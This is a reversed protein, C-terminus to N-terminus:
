PPLLLGALVHQMALQRGQYAGGAQRVRPGWSPPSPAPRCHARCATCCARAAPACGCAWAVSSWLCSCSAPAQLAPHAFLICDCSSTSQCPMICRCSPCADARTVLGVGAEGNGAHMSSLPSSLLSQRHQALLHAHLSRPTLQEECDMSEHRGHQAVMGTPAAAALYMHSPRRTPPPSLEVADHASGNTAHQVQQAQQAEDLLPEYGGETEAEPGRWAVWVQGARNPSGVGRQGGRRQVFGLLGRRVAKGSGDVVAAQAEAEASGGPSRQVPAAQVVQIAPAASWTIKVRERAGLRRLLRNYQRTVMWALALLGFLLADVTVGAPAPLNLPDISNSSCSHLVWRWGLLTMHQADSRACCGCVCRPWSGWVGVGGTLNNEVFETQPPCFAGPPCREPESSGQRCFHGAPCPLRATTNPCFSGGDCYISGGGSPWHAIPFASGPVIRWQSSPPTSASHM